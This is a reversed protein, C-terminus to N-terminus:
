FSLVARMRMFRPDNYQTLGTITGFSGTSVNENISGQLVTYNLPNFIDARFLLSMRDHIQFSKGLGTNYYVGILFRVGNSMEASSSVTNLAWQPTEIYAPSEGANCPGEVGAANPAEPAGYVPPTYVGGVMTASSVLPIFCNNFWHSSAQNYINLSQHPAKVNAGTPWVTGNPGSPWGAGNEQQWNMSNNWQWNGFVYRVIRNASSLDPTNYTGDFELYHNPQQDEYHAPQADQQNAYANRDMTKSITASVHFALRHTTRKTVEALLANYNIVGLREGNAQTQTITVGTFEPYPLYLNDQATTASNLSSSAPMYAAM